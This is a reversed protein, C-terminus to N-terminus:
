GAAPVDEATGGRGEPIRLAIRRIEERGAVLDRDINCMSEQRHRCLCSHRHWMSCLQQSLDDSGTLEGADDRRRIPRAELVSLRRATWEIRLRGGDGIRHDSIRRIR